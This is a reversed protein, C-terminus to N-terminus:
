LIMYFLKEGRFIEQTGCTGGRQEGSGQGCSSRFLWQDKYRRWSKAKKLIDRLQLIQFINGKWASKKLNAVHMSPEEMDKWPKISMETQQQIVHSPIVSSSITPHCWRSSPCSNLCARPTPSSCPPRTHQLGHPRSSDSVVSHSFQETVHSFM